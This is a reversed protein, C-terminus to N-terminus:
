EVPRGLHPHSEVMKLSSVTYLQLPSISGAEYEIKTIVNRELM